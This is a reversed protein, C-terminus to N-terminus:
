VYSKEKHIKERDVPGSSIKHYRKIPLNDNEEADFEWYFKSVPANRFIRATEDLKKRREGKAWKKGSM